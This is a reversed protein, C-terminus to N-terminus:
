FAAALHGFGSSSVFSMARQKQTEDLVRILPAAASALRRLYIATAAAGTAREGMRSVFGNGSAAKNQQRALARLAAAVPGWHRQQEPKLSLATRLREIHAEKIAPGGAGQSFQVQPAELTDAAALSTMGTALAVAGALAAKWM